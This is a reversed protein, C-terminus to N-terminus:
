KKTQLQTTIEEITKGKTEPFYKWATFLQVLMMIGFFTFIYAAGNIYTSSIVPFFFTILAAFFWHTFSGFSQGKGRVSTPFVESILIWIVTGTSAAFFLIYGVLFVLLLGSHSHMFFIVAVPLLCLTMGASGIILLKRRGVKDVIMLGLLTFLANTIGIIVPHFFATSEPLGSLEFIRPAFYLIANIGSFQNFMAVLFAIMISKSYLRSFLRGEKETLSETIAAIEKEIDGIRIKKLISLAKKKRGTKILFRPSEPIFFLGTLFLASPIALVALMYRWANDGSDRLLFNSVFAMLIGVIVNLQFSATARGRIDAPAIESIYMPAVVSSAGVAIGGLFRFIIFVVVDPALATGVASVLYGAAIVFLLPRRGYKDAPKGAFLAGTITGILASSIAFGHALASLDFLQQISKEVGSIVATDFGFLFGGLAVILSWTYIRITTKM